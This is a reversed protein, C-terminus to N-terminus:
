DCDHDIGDMQWTMWEGDRDTVMDDLEGRM